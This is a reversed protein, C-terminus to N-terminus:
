ARAMVRTRSAYTKRAIKDVIRGPGFDVFADAGREVAWEISERFRVRGTLQKLLLKRVEGPARYPRASVNSVVPIKPTHMEAHDLADALAPIATQMAPSHFAGEVSLRICRGGLENVLAAAHRLQDDGGSIVLQSPSNDNAVTVRARAALDEVTRHELGMVAAMGGASARAARSMADARASVLRVGDTFSLGGSVALATYEGLSHGILADFSEGAREYAIVGAVFIAPQAIRTPLTASSCRAVARRLDLDLIEDARQLRPSDKPLAEVIIDRDLGQGPFLGVRM